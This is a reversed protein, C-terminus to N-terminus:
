GSNGLALPPPTRLTRTHRWMLILGTCGLASFAILDILQFAKFAPNNMITASGKVGAGLRWAINISVAFSVLGSAIYFALGVYVLRRVSLALDSNRQQIAALILLLLIVTSLAGAAIGLPVSLVKLSVSTIAGWVLILAFAIWHVQGSCHRLAPKAQALRSARSDVPGAELIEASVSGQAKEIESKLLAVANGADARKRLSPLLETSVSTQLYCACEASQRSVIFAALAVITCLGGWVPHRAYVLTAATVILFAAAAYGYPAWLNPLETIVIAQIDTFYFRRYSESFPNRRVSLLHDASMWLSNRVFLGSRGPMRRYQPKSTMAPLNHIVGAM